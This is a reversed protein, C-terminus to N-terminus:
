NIFFLTSNLIRNEKELTVKINHVKCIKMFTEFSFNREGQEYKKISGHSKGITKGFESQTLETWERIIKIIDNPTYDNAKLRM